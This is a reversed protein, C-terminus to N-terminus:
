KSKPTQAAMDSFMRTYYDQNSSLNGQQTQNNNSAYANIGSSFVQAGASIGQGMINVANNSATQQRQQQGTLQAQKRNLQEM